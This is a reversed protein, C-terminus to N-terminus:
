VVSVQCFIDIVKFDRPPYLTTDLTHGGNGANPRDLQVEEGSKKKPLEVPRKIQPSDGKEGAQMDKEPLLEPKEIEM